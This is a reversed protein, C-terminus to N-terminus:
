SAGRSRRRPSHPGSAFFAAHIQAIRARHYAHGGPSAAPVAAMARALLARRKSAHVLRACQDCAAWGGTLEGGALQRAALPDPRWCAKQKPAMNVRNDSGPLQWVLAPRARFTGARGGPGTEAAPSGGGRQRHEPSPRGAVAWGPCSVRTKAPCVAQGAMLAAWAHFTPCITRAFSRVLSVPRRRSSNHLTPTHPRDGRESVINTYSCRNGPM